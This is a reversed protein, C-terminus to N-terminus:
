ATFFERDFPFKPNTTFPYRRKFDLVLNECTDFSVGPKGAMYEILRELMLLVQPIAQVTLVAGWASARGTEDLVLLSLTVSQAAAATMALLRGSLAWRLGHCALPDLLGPAGASDRSRAADRM